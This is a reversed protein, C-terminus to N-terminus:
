HVRERVLRGEPSEASNEGRFRCNSLAGDVQVLFEHSSERQLSIAFVQQFALAVASAVDALRPTDGTERSISTVGLGTLGCPIIAGFPTLDNIVNLAFGHRTVGQAIRVGMAAIKQDGIWVGPLSRRREAPLGFEALVRVLTEELLSMYVKPGACYSRLRLIPYGVLQGPGHYTVSGGRDCVCVPIGNIGHSDWGPGLHHPRSTRGLTYVAFHETLILTDGILNTARAEHLRVQLREVEAYETLGLDLLHGRIGASM